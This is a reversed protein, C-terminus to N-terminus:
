FVVQFRLGVVFSDRYIGSPSAIYMLVPQLTMWPTFQYKYFLETATERGTGGLNHLLHFVALGVSDNDRGPFLGRYLIGAAFYEKCETEARPFDTHFRFFCGLGQEDKDDTPNERFVSQEIDFYLTYQEPSQEEPLQIASRHSFGLDIVGPLRDGLRHRRELEVITFTAGTNSFGWTRGDPYGDWVGAKAWLAETLKLVLVAGVSNDPYTPAPLTAPIGAASHVFETALEVRHFEDNVDQKGLRIMLRDDWLTTEWWYKSVQTRNGFSDITSIMQADGVFDLSLGRGHTHQFLLHFKGPLRPNLKPLDLDMALDLLGEYRTGHRTRLGGRTNSLLEGIYIYEFAVPGRGHFRDGLLRPPKEEAEQEGGEIEDEQSPEKNNQETNNVEPPPLQGTPTSAWNSWGAQGARFGGSLPSIPLPPTMPGSRAQPYGVSDEKGALVDEPQSCALLPLWLLWRGVPLM